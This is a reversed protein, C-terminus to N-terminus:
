HQSQPKSHGTLTMLSVPRLFEGVDERKWWAGTASREGPDTFRYEYMRARVWRPPRDPFPNGQLLALVERDGLLLKEVFRMFWTEPFGGLPLFWMLWDLRLHYPAIQRPRRKPDGPKAKFSYEKWETRDDDAAGEVIIEYRERSVSGFAGYANVLHIPNYNYNMVQDRSVLNLAPKLSLAVTAFAMADLALANLSSRPALSPVEIPALALLLPDSFTTIGLVVTLWNLWSYNGAVILLLQHVIILLGSAACVPQPLLLGFPAVLQVFHSFVVGGRLLPRPIRHFHWSMPNPLPQTEHHYSLCTLDRWCSDHRLKILGAGLETRFLMWRLAMIPLISPEVHTPGLYIAFFGAELLMSEWGFAYFTQGVNVISLYLIWLVLWVASSVLVPGSESIGILAAASLAVGIWAFIAFLRDSYHIHFLTPARRFPVRALFRTVPLLGREGLLPRFQNLASIFAILYIGALGRQFLLRVLWMPGLYADLVVRM